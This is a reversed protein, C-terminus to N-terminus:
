FSLPRSLYDEPVPLGLAKAQKAWFKKLATHDELNEVLGLDMCVWFYGVGPFGKGYSREGRVVSAARHPRGAEHDERLSDGLSGAIARSRCAYGGMAAALTKYTTFQKARLRGGLYGEVKDQLLLSM